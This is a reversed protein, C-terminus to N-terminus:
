KLIDLVNRFWENVNPTAQQWSRGARASNMIEEKRKPDPIKAMMSEVSGLDAGKAGRGLLYQAITDWDDSLLEAKKGASDRKYLGEDPSWLMGQTSALANMVLQKNVGKYPSGQPIEHRHYVAVKHANKVVKIDVQYFKNDMPIKSHVTVGALRTEINQKNLFDALARRTDSADKTQFQQMLTTLEIMSDLDNSPVVNGNADQRPKWCSGIVELTVGLPALYQQTTDSLPKGVVSPDFNTEVDPWINGGEFLKM